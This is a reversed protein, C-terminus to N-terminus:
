KATAPPPIAAKMAALRCSTTLDFSIEDYRCTDCPAAKKGFTLLSRRWESLSAFADFISVSGSLRAVVYKQHSPSDSRLNCCPMVSGDHDVYMQQFPVFCPSTRVHGVGIQVLQGRDTGVESFNRVDLYVSMGRYEAQLWRRVESQHIPTVSLGLKKALKDQRASLADMDFEGGNSPYVQIAIHRLGADVLEDLYERTVYDGNTHTYLRASPIRDRAQRLRTLIIRDALPENYRSYSIDGSYEISALDDLIGLYLGEDMYRNAARTYRDPMTHNPCFGCKRNCFTFTELEVMKVSQNFLGKKEDDSLDARFHDSRIAVNLM